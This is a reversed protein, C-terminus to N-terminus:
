IGQIILIPNLWLLSIISPFLTRDLREFTQPRLKLHLKERVGPPNETRPRPRDPLHILEGMLSSAYLPFGDNACTFRSPQDPTCLGKVSTLIYDQTGVAVFCTIVVTGIQSRSVARPAIKCYHAMNLASSGLTQAFLFANPNNPLIFGTIIQTLTGLGLNTGTSASLFSLPLAFILKIAIMLFVLWIPTKLPYIELSIISVIIAAFLIVLFWWGPLEPHKAMLRSHVDMAEEYNVKGHRLGNYFHVYPTSVTKWQNVMIYLFYLPYFAFNAGVTLVYDASYFLPSASQVVYSTANNTFAVSPNIPLYATNYMNSYYIGLIIFDGLISGIYMTCTSFFPLALASYSSTAANWDFITIPNFLGLGLSSGALIALTINQPAIWTMWNFTALATFLYGPLWYTLYNMWLCEGETGSTLARNMAIKPLAVPWLARVPYVSFRRLYGAFGMGILQEFLTLMLQSDFTVFRLGYFVPSKQVLIMGYTMTAFMQEKFTWPAPNLSHTEISIEKDDSPDAVARVGPYPSLFRMLTADIKLYRDYFEGYLKLGQFLRMMKKRIQSPFNWDDAHFIVSEQIIALAKEEGEGNPALEELIEHPIQNGYQQGRSM